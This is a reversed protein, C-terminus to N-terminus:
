QETRGSPVFAEPSFGSVSRPALVLGVVSRGNIDCSRTAPLRLLGADKLARVATPAQVGRAELEHLPVFLGDPVASAAPSVSPDNLTSVISSIVAYVAPDLRMPANFAVRRPLDRAGAEEHPASPMSREVVMAPQQESAANVSAEQALQSSASRAPPVREILSFQTGPPAVVPAPARSPPSPNQKPEDLRRVLPVTLPEARADALLIGPSSIRVAELPSKADPPLITWTRIGNDQPVVVGADLLLDLITEPSKPIGALEDGELLRQVDSAAQPWVLFLGDSGLWVRSKERNPAWASNNALLVRMADVLYRVLHPGFRPTGDNDSRAQLDRDIVLASARRVLDALVNHERFLPVGSISALLHPVIIANDEALFQLTAPPVVMPLAFLGLGRFECALHRHWRVFYREEARSDLWDSLPVMCAPWTSGSPDNATLHSLPRHLESCLGGIFTGLRWRPELHRRVSITSRGSFIHADTGQLSFFAVELGLRLLGGPSSHHSDATAPLLHVYAAYRLLLPQVQTEFMERSIGFCLRIRSVLDGASALAEAASTRPIGAPPTTTPLSASAM